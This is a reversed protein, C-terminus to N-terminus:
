GVNKTIYPLVSLYVLTIEDKKVVKSAYYAEFLSMLGHLTSIRVFIQKNKLCVNVIQLMNSSQGAELDAFSLCKLLCYVIHQLNLKLTWYM